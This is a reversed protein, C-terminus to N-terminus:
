HALELFVANCVCPRVGKRGLVPPGFVRICYVRKKKYAYQKKPQAEIHKRPLSFEAQFISLIHKPNVNKQM